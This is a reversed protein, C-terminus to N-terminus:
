LRAGTTGVALPAGMLEALPTLKLPRPTVGGHLHALGEHRGKSFFMSFCHRRVARGNNAWASRNKKFAVNNTQGSWNLPKMDGRRRTFLCEPKRSPKILGATAPPSSGQNDSRGEYFNEFEQRYDATLANSFLAAIHNVRVHSTNKRRGRKNSEGTPLKM